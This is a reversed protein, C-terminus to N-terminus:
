HLSGNGRADDPFAQLPVPPGPPGESAPSSEPRRRNPRLEASRSFHAEEPERLLEEALPPFVWPRFDLLLSLGLVELGAWFLALLLPDLATPERRM